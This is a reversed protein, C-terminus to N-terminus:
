IGNATVALNLVPNASEAAVMKVEGTHADGTQSDIGVVDPGSNYISPKLSFQVKPYDARLAAFGIEEALRAPSVPLNPAKALIDELHSNFAQQKEAPAAISAKPKKV